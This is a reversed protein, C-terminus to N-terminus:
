IRRLLERKKAEFEEDTILGDQKLRGLRELQELYDPAPGSTTDAPHPMPPGVPQASGGTVEIHQTQARRQVTLHQEHMVRNLLQQLLRFEEIDEVRVTHGGASHVVVTGVGRAKQTMSQVVDVDVINSVPIQQSNTSLMGKEFFLLRKTLRYRRAGLGTLPKGVGEWITDPDHPLNTVTHVNELRHTVRGPVVTPAPTTVGADRRLEVEDSLIFKWGEPAPPWSPDPM